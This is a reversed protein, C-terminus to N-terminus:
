AIYLLKFLTCLTFLISLANQEKKKFQTSIDGQHAIRIM